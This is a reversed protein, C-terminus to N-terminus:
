VYSRDKACGCRTGRERGGKQIGAAQPHTDPPFCDGDKQGRKGRKARLFQLNNSNERKEGRKSRKGVEITRVMLSPFFSFSEEGGEGPNGGWKSYLAKGEGRNNKGWTISKHRALAMGIIICFAEKKQPMAPPTVGKKGKKQPSSFGRRTPVM